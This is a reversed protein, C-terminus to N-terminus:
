FELAKGCARGHARAAAARLAGGTAEVLGVFRGAPGYCRFTGQTSPLREAGARRSRWRRRHTSTSGRSRSLPADPPLLLADRTADDMAELAELTVAGDLSLPRHATRRLAALHACSGLAAAIDEALVRIYTGKSCAVRLMAQPPSWDILEIAAIEIPGRRARFTSAPARTNTTATRGEFKLAAFAPPM